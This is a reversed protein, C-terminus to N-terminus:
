LLLSVISVKGYAITIVTHQLFWFLIGLFILLLVLLVLLIIRKRKKRMDQRKREEMTQYAM